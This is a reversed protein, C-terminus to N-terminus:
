GSVAADPSPDSVAPLSAPQRKVYTRYALRAVNWIKEWGVKVEEGRLLKGIVQDRVHATARKLLFEKAYPRAVDFLHFQPSLSQGMGELTMLARAVFTFSAPIRFPYNYLTSSVTANLESFTLQSLKKGKYQALIGEAAERFAAPDYGPQLFGLAIADGVLGMLDRDTIHFFADLLGLRMDDTIRGVMGFDFFALRGDAMIRLNGPHPDAHFFGDDLLQKLYARVLLTMKQMPDFGAARLREADTPKVGAIYEMTIVRRSSLEPYLRPLYIEQQWGAFNRRFQAANEMEREYDMEEQLMAEFEAVIGSWDAGKVGALWRPRRELYTAIVRLIQFDLRVIEELNPRQIKVVVETGDPLQARHVQGLSAAALPRPEIRQFLAQPPQGLAETIRQWAAETPFPPVADQLATLAQVYALPLLDTRTSLMQGIKIFTPGLKIFAACLREAQRAHFSEATAASAKSGPRLWRLRQGGKGSTELSRLLHPLALRLGLWLIRLLRARARWDLQRIAAWFFRLASPAPRNAPPPAFSPASSPPMRPPETM